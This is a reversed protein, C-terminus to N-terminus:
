RISTHHEAAAACSFMNCVLIFGKACDEDKIRETIISVVLTDSVLGGSDMVQARPLTPTACADRLFLANTGWRSRKSALKQALRSPLACCTALPSVRFASHRLSPLVM